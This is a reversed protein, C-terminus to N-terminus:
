PDLRRLACTMATGIAHRADGLEKMVLGFAPVPLAACGLEGQLARTWVHTLWSWVMQAKAPLPGLVAAEEPLLLGADILDSLEYM